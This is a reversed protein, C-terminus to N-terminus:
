FITSFVEVKEREKKKEGGGGEERKREREQLWEVTSSPPLPLYAM